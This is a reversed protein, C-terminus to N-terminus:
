PPLSVIVELFSLIIALVAGGIGVVRKVIDKVDYHVRVDVSSGGIVAKVEPDEILIQIGQKGTNKPRLTIWFADAVQLISAIADIMDVNEDLSVIPLPGFSLDLPIGDRPDLAAEIALHNPEWGPALVNILVKKKQNEYKPDNNFLFVLIRTVDSSKTDLPIATDYYVTTMTFEEWNDKLQLFLGDIIRFFHPIEKKMRKLNTMIRNENMYEYNKILDYAEPNGFEINIKERVLTENIPPFTLYLYFLYLVLERLRRFETESINPKKILRRLFQSWNDYKLFSLPDLFIAFNDSLVDNVVTPYENITHFPSLGGQYDFVPTSSIRRLSNVSFILFLIFVAFLYFVISIPVDAVFSIPNSDISSVWGLLFFVEGSLGLLALLVARQKEDKLSQLISDFGRVAQLPVGSQHHSLLILKVGFDSLFADITFLLLNFVLFSWMVAIVTAHFDLLSRSHGEGLFDGVILAAFIFIPLALTSPIGIYRGYWGIRKEIAQVKMPDINEWFKM